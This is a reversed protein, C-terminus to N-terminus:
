QARALTIVQRALDEGLGSVYRKPGLLQFVLVYRTAVASSESLMAAPPEPGVWSRTFPADTSYVEQSTGLASSRSYIGSRLELASRLVLRRGGAVNLGKVRGFEYIGHKRRALMSVALTLM